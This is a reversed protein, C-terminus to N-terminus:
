CLVLAVFVSNPIVELVGMATALCSIPLLHYPFTRVSKCVMVSGLDSGDSLLHSGKHEPGAWCKGGDPILWPM